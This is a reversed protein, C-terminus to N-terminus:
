GPSAEETHVPKAEIALGARPRLNPHTHTLSLSLPLALSHTHSLAHSLAHTPCLLLTVWGTTGYAELQADVM